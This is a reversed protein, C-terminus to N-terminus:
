DADFSLFLWEQHATKFVFVRSPSVDPPFLRITLEGRKFPYDGRKVPPSTSTAPEHGTATKKDSKSTTSPESCSKALAPLCTHALAQSASAPQEQSVQSSAGKTVSTGLCECCFWLFHAIFLRYTSRPACSEECVRSHMLSLSASWAEAKQLFCGDNKWHNAKKEWLFSALNAKDVTLCHFHFYVSVYM